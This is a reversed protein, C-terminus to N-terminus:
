PSALPLQAFDDPGLSDMDTEQSPPYTSLLTFQDPSADAPLAIDIIRTHNTDAPAGGLRWQEAEANVDRVRWVGTAPFGEQSMVVALYKWTAPDDSAGAGSQAIVKKPVRIIIKHQGPDTSIALDGQVEEPGKDGGRYMAPYWGEAWIAFDWADAASVAANRGPLLKRLGAGSVGDQDVYVDVTHIGMGNPSPPSWESLGGYFTFKFLVNNDDYAVEFTKLDYAHSPFVPDQPYTYTGPGKDDGQPDEITLV